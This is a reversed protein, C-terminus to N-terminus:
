PCVASEVGEAGDEDALAFDLFFFLATAVEPARPFAVTVPFDLRLEGRKWRICWAKTAEVVRFGM